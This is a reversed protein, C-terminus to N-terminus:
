PVSFLRGISISYDSAGPRLEYFKIDGDVRFKEENDYFDEGMQWALFGEALKMASGDSKLGLKIEKNIPLNTLKLSPDESTGDYYSVTYKQDSKVYKAKVTVDHHPVVFATTADMNVHDPLFSFRGTYKISYLDLYGMDNGDHYWYTLDKTLYDNLKNEGAYFTLESYYGEVPASVAYVIDGPSVILDGDENTTLPLGTAQDFGYLTVGAGDPLSVTSGDGLSVDTSCVVKSPASKPVAMLCLNGEVISSVVIGDLGMVKWGAFEDKTLKLNEANSLGNPGEASYDKISFNESYVTKGNLENKYLFGGDVQEVSLDIGDEMYDFYLVSEDKQWDQLTILTGPKIIDGVQLDLIHLVPQKEEEAFAPVVSTLALVAALMLSCLRRTM